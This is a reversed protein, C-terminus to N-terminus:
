LRRAVGKVDPLVLEIRVPEGAECAFPPLEQVVIIRSGGGLTKSRRELEPAPRSEGIQCVLCERAWLSLPELLKPKGRDLIPDVGVEREPAVVHEDPFEALKDVGIWEALTGAALEHCREVPSTPLCFSQLDVAFSSGGQALLQPDLRARSEPFELTRDQPV